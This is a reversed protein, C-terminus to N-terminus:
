PKLRNIDLSPNSMLKSTPVEFKRLDTNGKRTQTNNYSLLVLNFYEDM